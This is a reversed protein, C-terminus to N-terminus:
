NVIEDQELINLWNLYKELEVLPKYGFYHNTYTKNGIEWKIFWFKTDNSNMLFGVNDKSNGEIVFDTKILIKDSDADKITFSGESVELTDNVIVIPHGKETSDGIMICIDSQVRKIFKYALKKNFYYDVIADSIIPWGDKLNWWLIGNREGKNMRWFEIFYKMAEAQVIQSAKIFKDLDKPVETFVCKIQNIMLDNRKRHVESHPHTIVAKAQWQENWKFEDTWPYVFDKEMMMELSERNPCGHYGIESVFKAINETYFPAKYYGRPGWLHQEPAYTQDVKGALRFAESSIYPSSPLYPTHPDFRRVVNPLIQRSIINDNPNIHIQDEDWEQSIDNENNGAWLVICTHNRLRKVVKKAEIDIKNAFDKNQPYVTCGMAFDQWVMIGNQDCLDYFEDNEYVNGGWMRVMNCNLDLLMEFTKKLHLRDRSHVADLPVWNTGKIFVKEGNVVFVFEGPNEISNAETRVLEAKRIGIIQEDEALILGESDLLKVTAYYLDPEGFGKPWWFNVNELNDIRLRSVTTYIKIKQEYLIVQENKIQVFLILDDINLKDTDFEWDLYLNARKNKVDVSKTVWYISKLKTPNEIKLEVDKWIGASVLRPMIDWGYMHAAKRIHVSEALADDRVGLEEREYKRSELIPSKICVLLENIQELQKTINFTHEVFMNDVSGIKVNNLWIDAICDIGHFCLIVNQDENVKPKVFSTKYWWLYTEYKRLKYSNIGITPDEIIGAKELDIEVNGPVTANIEEFNSNYLEVPTLPANRDQPGFYLAWKNLNLNIHEIQKDM